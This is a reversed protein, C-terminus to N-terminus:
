FLKLLKMRCAATHKARIPTVVAHVSRDNNCDADQEAQAAKIEFHLLKIILNVNM